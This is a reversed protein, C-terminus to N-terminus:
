SARAGRDGQSRQEEAGNWAGRQNDRLAFDITKRLLRVENVSLSRIIAHPDRVQALWARLLAVKAEHDLALLGDVPAGRRVAAVCASIAEDNRM